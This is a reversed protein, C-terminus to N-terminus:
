QRVWGLTIALPTTNVVSYKKSLVTEGPKNANWTSGITLGHPEDYALQIVTNTGVVRNPHMRVGPIAGVTDVIFPVTYVRQVSSPEGRLLVLNQYWQCTPVAEGPNRRIHDPPSTDDPRVLKFVNFDGVPDFRSLPLPGGVSVPTTPNTVPSTSTGTAGPVQHNPKLSFIAAASLAIVLLAASCKGLSGWVKKARNQNDVAILNAPVLLELSGTSRGSTESHSAFYLSSESPIPALPTSTSPLGTSGPSPMFLFLPTTERMAWDEEDGDRQATM